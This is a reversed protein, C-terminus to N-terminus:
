LLNKIKKLYILNIKADSQYKDLKLMSKDIQGVKTIKKDKEFQKITGLLVWGCRQNSHDSM